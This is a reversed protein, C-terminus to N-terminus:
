ITRSSSKGRSTGSMSSLTSSTLAKDVVGLVEDDVDVDLVEDEVYLVEDEM